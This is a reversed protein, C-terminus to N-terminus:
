IESHCKSNLNKCFCALKLGQNKWVEGPLEVNGGFHYEPIGVIKFIYTKELAKIVAMPIAFFPSLSAWESSYDEELVGIDV